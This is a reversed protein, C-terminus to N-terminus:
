RKFLASNIKELVHARYHKSIPLRKQALKVEDADLSTIARLAVLYSKHVRVFQDQPLKEAIGKFTLYAIYRREPTHIVVYNSMGEVYLVDALNIKEIKQECKVFFFEAATENPQGSFKKLRHFDRAKNVAKLFRDFGIPKLLYDLADFEFGQLAYEPFATTIVTLAAPQVNKLFELGSMKPMQVDLFILDIQNGGLLNNAAVPNEAEGALMLFDVDAVYERLVQRALPEDDVILCNLKNM